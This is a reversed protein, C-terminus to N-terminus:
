RGGRAEQVTAFIKGSYLRRESSFVPYPISDGRDKSYGIIKFSPLSSTVKIPKSDEIMGEHRKQYAIKRGLALAAKHKKTM